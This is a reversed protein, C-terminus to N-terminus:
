NRLEPFSLAKVYTPLQFISVPLSASTGQGVQRICRVQPSFNLAALHSPNAFRRVGFVERDDRELGGCARRRCVDRDSYRQHEKVCTLSFESGHFGTFESSMVKVQASGEFEFRVIM